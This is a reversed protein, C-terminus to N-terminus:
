YDGGHPCYVAKAVFKWGIKDAAQIELTDLIRHINADVKKADFPAAPKPYISEPDIDVVRVGEKFNKSNLKSKHYDSNSRSPSYTLVLKLYKDFYEKPNFSDLGDYLHLPATWQLLLGLGHGKGLIKDFAKNSASALTAEREYPFLTDGTQGGAFVYRTSGTEYAELLSCTEDWEIDPPVVISVGYVAVTELDWWM